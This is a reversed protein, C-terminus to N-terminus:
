GAGKRYREKKVSKGIRLIKNWSTGKGVVGAKMKIKKYTVELNKLGRGGKNIPLYLSTNSQLSYKGNVKYMIDRIISDMERVDGLNFKESWMYYEVSSHVFINTSIVKNFESLPSTWVVNSRQKVVKKLGTILNNTDHLVNEPVGLIKYKQESKLCEIKSGDKLIVEDHSEDIIERKLNIIKSKLSNQLEGDEMKSKIQDMM